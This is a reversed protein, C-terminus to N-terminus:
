YINIKGSSACKTNIFGFNEDYLLCARGTEFLSLELYRQNMTDPLNIWEFMSLCINTFRNIYDLFTEDNLIATDLFNLNKLNPAKICRNKM